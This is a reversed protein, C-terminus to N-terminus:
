YPNAFGGSRWRSEAGDLRSMDSALEPDDPRQSRALRLLERARAFYAAVDSEERLAISCLAINLYIGGLNRQADVNNPDRNFITEFDSAASRYADLGDRLAREGGTMLLLRGIKSASVARDRLVEASTPNHRLLADAMGWARMFSSFASPLDNQALAAEGVGALAQVQAKLYTQNNADLELLQTLTDYASQHASRAQAFDGAAMYAEAIAGYQLALGHKWSPDNPHRAVAAQHMELSTRQHGLGGSVDGRVVLVSGLATHAGMQLAANADREDGHTALDESLRLAENAMSLARDTDHALLAQDAFFSLNAIRIRSLEDSQIGMENLANLQSEAEELFGHIVERSAGLDESLTATRMVFASAVRVSAEAMLEARKAYAYAAYGAGAAVIALAGMSAAIAQYVRVRSREARLERQKLDDFPVGLLAAITKLTAERSGDGLARADAALPQRGDSVLESPFCEREGGPEGDVIFALIKAERGLSRFFRIEESVWKSAVANPSCVVILHESKRLADRVDATLDASASLEDRDRFIPRVRNPLDPYKELLTKPVRYREISGHLAKAVRVDRSNSSVFARYQFDSM